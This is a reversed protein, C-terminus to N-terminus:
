LEEAKRAGYVFTVPHSPALLRALEFLPVVGLGGAAILVPGREVPTFGRGLPGLVMLREGPVVRRLLATGRGVERILLEIRGTEPDATLYGFPRRLLPDQAGEAPPKVMLFQGPRLERALSPAALGLRFVEPGLEQQEIVMVEHDRAMM